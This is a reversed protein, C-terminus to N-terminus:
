KMGQAWTIKDREYNVTVAVEDTVARYTGAASKHGNGSKHLGGFPFHSEAAISGGNLYIMGARCNDRCWRMNRFDETIVGLALGYETDNYIEIAHCVDDFPILALHPGFVEQKLYPVDRWETTYIFPRLFNGPGSLYGDVGDKDLVVKAEKDERVMQNFTKVRTVQDKSILPGCSLGSSYDPNEFPDTVLIRKALDVVDQCFKDFIDRQILIRGSSVCRQGSLKFASAIVAELALNWNADNFVIVASKSGLECSCSKNWTGACHQKIIKGVEASGTFLVCDVDAEVLAKGTEEAGNILNYVGRPFGAEAYLKAMMNAIGPTLESPKHVVCNGEAIAPASCWASGIAAPFNWPSIVAVVGKPKRIVYADKTALESAIIEGCPMRGTGAVYQLMHLTEIVEAKSENLNKGTELSIMEALKQTDRKVLQALVDFYDARQVRSVEKWTQFAKRASAVAFNVEVEPTHGFEFLGTNDCPNLSVTRRGTSGAWAGDVYNNLQQM